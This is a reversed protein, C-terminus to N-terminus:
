AMRKIMYWRLLIIWILHAILLHVIKMWLPALSFLTAYGFVVGGVFILSVQLGAKRLVESKEEQSKLWFYIALGGGMLTALIPHSIRLRLLYHADPTFDKTIGEFLSTAPFLTTSLAAFAGTVAIVIFLVLFSSTWKPLPKRSTLVFSNKIKHPLDSAYLAVLAVSGSLLLSNVQHLGMILLRFPSDNGGVLGFLVLKAGLLAETITFILTALIAKRIAEQRDFFKRGQWFLYMVLIGFLGSTLRHSFEVWTKQHEAEPIIQGNCLPWSAGCGDGSHSIRVWAGWLIVLLTYFLLFQAFRHFQTKTKM